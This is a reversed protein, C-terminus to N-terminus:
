LELIWKYRRNTSSYILFIEVLVILGAHANYEPMLRYFGGMAIVSNCLPLSQVISSGIALNRGM